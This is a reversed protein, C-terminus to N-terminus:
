LEKHTKEFLVDRYNGDELIVTRVLTRNPPLKQKEADRIENLQNKLILRMNNKFLALEYNSEKLHFAIWYSMRKYNTRLFYPVNDVMHYRNPIKEEKTFVKSLCEDENIFMKIEQNLSRDIKDVKMLTKFLEKENTLPKRDYLNSNCISQIDEIIPHFPEFEEYQLALEKLSKEKLTLVIGLDAFLRKTVNKFHWELQNKNRRASIYGDHMDSLGFRKDKHKIADIQRFLQIRIDTEVRAVDNRFLTSNKLYEKMIGQWFIATAPFHEAFVKWQNREQWGPNTNNLLYMFKRKSTVRNQYKRPKNKELFTPTNPYKTKDVPKATFYEYFSGSVTLIVLNDLEKKLENKLDLNALYHITLIPPNKYLLNNLSFTTDDTKIKKFTAPLFRETDSNPNFLYNFIRKLQIFTFVPYANCIDLDVLEKDKGYKMEFFSRYYKEMSKFGNDYVRGLWDHTFVLDKNLISEIQDYKLLTYNNINIAQQVKGYFGIKRKLEEESINLQLKGMFNASMRKVLELGNENVPVSENKTQINALRKNKFKMMSAKFKSKLEQNQITFVQGDEARQLFLNAPLGYGAAIGNLYSSSETEEIQNHAILYKKSASYNRDIVRLIQSDINVINMERAKQIQKENGSGNFRRFILHLFYAMVDINLESNANIEQRHEEIFESHFGFLLLTFPNPKTKKSM